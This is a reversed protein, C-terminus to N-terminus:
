VLEAWRQALIVRATAGIMALHSLAQPDTANM